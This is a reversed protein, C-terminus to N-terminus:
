FESASPKSKFVSAISSFFGGSKKEKSKGNSDQTSKSADKDLNSQIWSALTGSGHGYGGPLERYDM